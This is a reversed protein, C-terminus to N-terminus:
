TDMVMLLVMLFIHQAHFPFYSDIQRFEIYQSYYHLYFIIIIIIIIINNIIM